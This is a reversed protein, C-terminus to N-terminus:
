QPYHTYDFEWLDEYIFYDPFPVIQTFRSGGFVYQKNLIQASLGGLRVPAAMQLSTFSNSVPDYKLFTGEHGYIYGGEIAVPIIGQTNTLKDIWTDTTPNYEYIKFTTQGSRNVHYVKNNITFNNQGAIIVPADQLQTWGDTIPDYKWVDKFGDGGVLYASGNAVFSEANRRIAGPFDNLRTWTDSAPNYKWIENTVQALTEGLAIYVIDNLVFSVSSIREAGPFDNKQSWSNTTPDYAWLDRLWSGSKPQGLGVYLKDNLVYRIPNQRAIGPFNSKQAWPGVYNFTISSQNSIQDGAKVEM